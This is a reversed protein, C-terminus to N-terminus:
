RARDLHALLPEYAPDAALTAQDLFPQIPSGAWTAQLIGIPVGLRQQLDRAFFYAAASFSAATEPSCVVWSGECATQPETAMVQAVKFFRITPYDAEAAEQSANNARSLTFNMNSQGSALWVEGILVDKIEIENRGVVTLTYPGGAPRAPLIAKWRGQEDAVVEVALEVKQGALTVEVKEGPSAQGWVPAQCERQLVMHDGFPSALTVDAQAVGAALLCFLMAGVTIAHTRWDM